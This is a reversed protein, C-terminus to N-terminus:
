GAGAGSRPAGRPARPGGHGGPGDGDNDFTRAMLQSIKADLGSKMQNAQDATLRGDKVAQDIRSTEDAKLAAAVTNPDVNHARAVDTLSKGALEQRLQGTSIGIAKAAVDLNVHGGHREGWPGEGPPLGQEQRVQDIAQQLKEQTIGLKAALAQLFSQYRNQGPPGPTTQATPTPPAQQASVVGLAAGGLLLAAAGAAVAQKFSRSAV